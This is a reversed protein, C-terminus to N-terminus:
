IHIIGGARVVRNQLEEVEIDALDCGKEIALAAALGAAQGTVASAPIVKGHVWADGSASLSRGATMVNSMDPSILARYPIEYVIGRQAFNVFCGISDDFRKLADAETLEYRGNLRRGSRLQAMGPLAVVARRKGV